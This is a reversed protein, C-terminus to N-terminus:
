HPSGYAPGFQEKGSSKDAGKLDRALTTLPNPNGNKQDQNKQTDRALFFGGEFIGSLLQDNQSKITDIWIQQLLPHSGPM